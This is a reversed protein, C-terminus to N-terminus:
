RYKQGNYIALEQLHMIHILRTNFTFKKPIIIGQTLHAYIEQEWETLLKTEM